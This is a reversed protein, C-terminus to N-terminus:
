DNQGILKRQYSTLCFRIWCFKAGITALPQLKKGVAMFQKKGARSETERDRQDSPPLAAGREAATDAAASLPSFHGLHLRRCANNYTCYFRWLNYLLYVKVHLHSM